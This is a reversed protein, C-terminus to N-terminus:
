DTYRPLLLKRDTNLQPLRIGVERRLIFRELILPIALRDPRPLHAAQNVGVLLLLCRLHLFDFGKRREDLSPPTPPPIFAGGAGVHLLAGLVEVSSCIQVVSVLWIADDSVCKQGTLAEPDTNVFDDYVPRKVWRHYSEDCVAQGTMAGYLLAVILTKDSVMM